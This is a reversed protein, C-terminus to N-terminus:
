LRDGPSLNKHAKRAREMGSSAAYRSLMQRSRWGTIRMLDDENGNNLKWMHAFTHRFQHPHIHPVEAEKCRNKVM